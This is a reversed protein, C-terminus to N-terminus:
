RPTARQISDCAAIASRVGDEHFGYGWYAGAYHTRQVGNITEHQRQARLAKQDFVPHSLVFRGLVEDPHIRGEDNLTVLLPKTSEIGQLRNMDYTLLARGQYERPIRYNWCAWAHPSTPMLKTDSHLVVDNPQYRIAGLVEKEEPSADALLNLAQDSHTAIVVHDFNESGAASQVEVCEPNRHVSQVPTGPRLTGQFDALLRDVYRQSGGRIVRWPLDPRAQLLGHNDFFRVFTAAPFDLFQRPDASWIAAGLPVIYHDLFQQSFGNEKLYTGLSLESRDDELIQRSDRNFRLVDLLMKLFRPRALNRPQAFVSRMGRSAWELGTQECSIGFSMTTPKTEVGLKEIMEIFNPYTALNYVIFGVDVSHTEGEVDVKVTHTHGGIRDESEFLTVDHEADLRHAAFLGSIGSGIVAIKM